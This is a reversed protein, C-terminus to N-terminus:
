REDILDVVLPVGTDFWHRHLRKIKQRNPRGSLHFSCEGYDFAHVTECYAERAEQKEPAGELERAVGAFRGGRIRLSVRPNARINWLWASVAGTKGSSM